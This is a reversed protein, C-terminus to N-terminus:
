RNSRNEFERGANIIASLNINSASDPSKSDLAAVLFNKTTPNVSRITLSVKYAEPVITSVENFPSNKPGLQPFDITKVISKGLHTIEMSEIYAYPAYDVGPIFVEYMCPVDIISRSLRGPTNQYTLLFLLNWNRTINDISSSAGNAVNSLTFEVDWSKGGSEMNFFKSKEFYTGPQFMGVFGEAAKLAVDTGVMVANALTLADKKDGTAASTGKDGSESFNNSVNLISKDTKLPFTYTFGTPKLLYLGQYTNLFQSAPADYDKIINEAGSVADKLKKQLGQAGSAGAAATSSLIGSSAVVQLNSGATAITDNATGLANLSSSVLNTIFASVCVRKEKIIIRPVKTRAPGVHNTWPFDNVIDVNGASTGAGGIANAPKITVNTARTSGSSLPVVSPAGPEITPISNVNVKAKDDPYTFKWFHISKAM